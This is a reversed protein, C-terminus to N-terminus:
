KMERIEDRDDNTREFYSYYVKTILPKQSPPPLIDTDIRDHNTPPLLDQDVLDDFVKKRKKDKYPSSNASSARKKRSNTIVDELRSLTTSDDNGNEFKIKDYEEKIYLNPNKIDGNHNLKELSKDDIVIKSSKPIRSVSNLELNSFESKLNERKMKFHKGEQKEDPKPSRSFSGIHRTTNAETNDFNCGIYRTYTESNYPSEKTMKNQNGQPINRFNKKKIKPKLHRAHDYVIDGNQESENFADSDGSNNASSSSGSSTGHSSVWNTYRSGNQVNQRVTQFEFFFYKISSDYSKLNILVNYIVMLLVDANNPSKNNNNRSNREGPIRSLRSLDIKCVIQNPTILNNSNHINSVAVTYCDRESAVTKDDSHDVIMVQGKGKAGADGKSVNLFINRVIKNKQESKGIKNAKRNKKISEDSEESSSYRSQTEKSIKEREGQM